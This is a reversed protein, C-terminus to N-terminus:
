SNEKPTDERVFNQRDYDMGSHRDDGTSECACNDASGLPEEESVDVYGDEESRRDSERPKSSKEESSSARTDRLDENQMQCEAKDTNHYCAEKSCGCLKHTEQMGDAVSPQNVVDESQTESTDVYGDEDSNHIVDRRDEEEVYGKSDEVCGHETGQVVGITAHSDKKAEFKHLAKVQTIATNPEEREAVYAVAYGNYEDEIPMSSKVKLDEERGKEIEEDRTKLRLKSTNNNEEARALYTRQLDKHLPLGKQLPAGLVKAKDNSSSSDLNKSWRLIQFDPKQLPIM